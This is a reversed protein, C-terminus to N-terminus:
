QPGLLKVSILQISFMATMPDYDSQTCLSNIKRM